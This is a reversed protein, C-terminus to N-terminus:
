DTVAFTETGAERTVRAVEDWRLLVLRTRERWQADSATGKGERIAQPEAFTFQRAQVEVGAIWLSPSDDSSAFSLRGRERDVGYYAPRRWRGMQYESFIEAPWSRTDVIRVVVAGGGPTAIDKVRVGRGDGAQRAGAQMPVDLWQVPKVVRLQARVVLSSPVARLKEGAARVVQASAFITPESRGSPRYGVQGPTKPKTEQEKRRAAEGDSKEVPLKFAERVWRAGVPYGLGDGVIREGGAWTWAHETTGVDVAMGAPVGDVRLWSSVTTGKERRVADVVTSERWTLKIERAQEGNAEKWGDKTIAGGYTVVVWGALAVVAATGSAVGRFVRRQLEDSFRVSWGIAALLAAVVGFAWRGDGSPFYDAIAKTALPVSIAGAYGAISWLVYRGMSDVLVAIFFSPVIVAIAAGLGLAAALLGDGVGFGSAWWWPLGLVLSPGAVWLLAGAVKATLLRALSIPRTRWAAQPGVLPDELVLAGTLLWGLVVEGAVLGVLVRSMQQWIGFNQAPGWALWWGIGFKAVTVAVLLAGWWKLRRVDKGVITLLLSM